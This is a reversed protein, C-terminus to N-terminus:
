IRKMIIDQCYKTSIESGIYNRKNLAAMKLVTGSGALPDYVLDNENSWTLIHDQALKEPFIAPHEHAIKDSSMHGGATVYKWVNHRMGYEESTCGSTNEKWGDKTRHKGHAKQGVYINKRDKIANFTNLKGKVFVFMYEFVQHYRNSSPNSFNNKLYIMTDHLKFGLQKFYLAQNFSTGSETGNKTSDGVVWVVVGGDKTVRFLSSAVPEFKFSYGDYARMNDYPPSTITLDICNSEMRAMTDLCNENYITNINM